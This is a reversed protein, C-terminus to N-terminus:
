LLDLQQMKPIFEKNSIIESVTEKAIGNNIIATKCKEFINRNHERLLTHKKDTLELLIKSVTDRYKPMTDFYCPLFCGYEVASKGQVKEGSLGYEYDDHSNLDIFQFGITEHYFFNDKGVFDVMIGADIIKIIDAIYKDFHEQPVNSLLEVRELVYDKDNVKDRDYLETGKARAQIIYGNGNDSQFALIPVVNVGKAQLDLLTKALRELHKLDTDQITVNRFNINRMKLIAYKDFLFVKTSQFSNDGCKENTMNKTANIMHQVIDREIGFYKEIMM